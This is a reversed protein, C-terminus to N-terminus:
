YPCIMWRCHHNGKCVQDDVEGDTTAIIRPKVQEKVHSQCYVCFSIQCVIILTILSKIM